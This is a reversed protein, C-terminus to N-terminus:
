SCGDLRTLQAGLGAYDAPNCSLIIVQLGREAALDLMRQLTKVREPDSYAFADDFVIPLKGDHNAAM